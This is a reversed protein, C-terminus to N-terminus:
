YLRTHRLAEAEEFQRRRQKTYAESTLLRFFKNFGHSDIVRVLSSVVWVGAESLQVEIENVPEALVTERATGGFGLYIDQIQIPAPEHGVVQGQDQRWVRINTLDAGEGIGDLTLRGKAMELPACEMQIAGFPFEESYLLPVGVSFKGPKLDEHISTEHLEFGPM